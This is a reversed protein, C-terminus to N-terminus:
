IRTMSRWAPVGGISSFSRKMTSRSFAQAPIRRVWESTPFSSVRRGNPSRRAISVIDSPSPSTQRRAGRFRADSQQRRRRVPIRDDERTEAQNQRWERKGPDVQLRRAASFSECAFTRAVPRITRQDQGLCSLLRKARRSGAPRLASHGCLGRLPPTWGEALSFPASWQALRSGPIPAVNNAIM